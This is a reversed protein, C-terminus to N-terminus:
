QIDWKEKNWVQMSCGEVQVKEFSCRSLIGGVIVISACADSCENIHLAKSPDTTDEM